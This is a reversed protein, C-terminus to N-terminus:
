LYCLHQTGLPLFFIFAPIDFIFAGAKSNVWKWGPPDQFLLYWVPNTSPAVVHLWGLGVTADRVLLFGRVLDGEVEMLQTLMKCILFPWILTNGLKLTILKRVKLFPDAMGQSTHSLPNLAPRFVLLDSTRNGTLACAQTTPWTGPLLRVLPSRYINRECTSTERGRGGDLFLYIFDIKFFSWLVLDYDWKLNSCNM